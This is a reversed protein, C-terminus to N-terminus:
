FQLFAFILFLSFQFYYFFFHEGGIVIDDIRQVDEVNNNNDEVNAEHNNLDVDEMGDDNDHLNRIRGNVLEQIDEAGERDNNMDYRNLYDLEVGEADHRIM